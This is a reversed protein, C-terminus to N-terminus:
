GESSCTDGCVDASAAGSSALSVESSEDSYVTDSASAYDDM